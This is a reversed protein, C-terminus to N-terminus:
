DFLRAVLELLSVSGSAGLRAGGLPSGFGREGPDAGAQEEAEWRRRSAEARKEDEEIQRSKEVGGTAVWAAIKELEGEDLWYGHERCVDVIVGSIRGYNRRNMMQGCVPCRIYTVQTDRLVSQRPGDLSDITRARAEQKRILAEFADVGVFIGLCMPCELLKHDGIIRRRMATSCRPCPEEVDEPIDMDSTLPAGCGSCFKAGEKSTTCCRTCYATLRASSFDVLAGCFPCNSEDKKLNGGCNACHLTVVTHPAPAERPVVVIQGCVCRLRQGPRYRTVDYPRHCKLCELIM